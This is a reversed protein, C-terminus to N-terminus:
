AGMQSSYTTRSQARLITWTWGRLIQPAFLLLFGILISIIRSRFSQLSLIGKRHWSLPGWATPPSRDNPKNAFHGSRLLQVHFVGHIKTYKEHCYLEGTLAGHSSLAYLFYM